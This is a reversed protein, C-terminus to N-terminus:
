ESDDEITYVEQGDRDAGNNGGAAAGDEQKSPQSQRQQYLKQLQPQPVSGPTSSQFLPGEASSIPTEAGPSFLTSGSGLSKGRATHYPLPHSVAHGTNATAAGSSYVTDLTPAPIASRSPGGAGCTVLDSLRGSLPTRFRADNCLGMLYDVSHMDKAEPQRSPSPADRVHGATAAAAAGRSGHTLSSASLDGLGLATSPRPISPAQTLEDSGLLVVGNSSRQGEGTEVGGGSLAQPVSQGNFFYAHRQQHQQTPIPSSGILLESNDTAHSAGAHSGSRLTDALSPDGSALAHSYVTQAMMTFPQQPVQPRPRQGMPLGSGALLVSASTSSASPSFLHGNGGAINNHPPPPPPPAPTGWSVGAAAVAVTSPPAQWAPPEPFLPVSFQPMPPTPPPHPEHPPLAAAVASAATLITNDHANAVSPDCTLQDYIDAIRNAAAAANAQPPLPPAGACGVPGQLSLWPSSPRVNVSIPVAAPAAATTSSFTFTTRRQRQQDGVTGPLKVGSGGDRSPTGASSSISARAKEPTATDLLMPRQAPQYTALANTSAAEISMGGVFGPTATSPLRDGDGSCGGEGDNDVILEGASANARGLRNRPRVVTKMDKVEASEAESLEEVDGIHIYRFHRYVRLIDAGYRKVKSKGMGELDILDAVSGWGPIALTETLRLITSKPMVNYSRCGVAQSVLTQVLRDMEEQLLVKLRELRAAPVTSAPTAATVASRLGRQALVARQDVADGRTRKRPPQHVQAQAQTDESLTSIVGDQSGGSSLTRQRRGADALAAGAGDRQPTTASSINFPTAVGSSSSEDNIFSAMSNSLASDEEISSIVGEDGDTSGDAEDLVYGGGRRGKLPKPKRKKADQAALLGRTGSGDGVAAQRRTGDFLEFLPLDDRSIAGSVASVVADRRKGGGEVALAATTAVAAIRGPSFTEPAASVADFIADGRDSRTKEGRLRVTVVRHEAKIDCHLQQATPTGGLEVFACVAFDNISDLREEFLGLQMGELLTRELLVKSQKAGGKYEAPTGKVRMRMEVARGMDSVSGRYVGILQKSTMAGLRLVIAYLDLLINSVNVEKVTWGEALKSACNDCLQTVASASAVSTPPLAPVAGGGAAARQTLCFHVDVQEGFHHLQQRRRCDVDNLTYALMRHLSTLSARWDKSGHILREQRQRDTTTSLLVCESPLGDRGARGSEQYYGEISKPMAAHVVYRVDPKNIGMGFAITACIVQLEDRTWREQRENKSAAESHYYSAKIGRRVLAAAMEECDKRSLCYVIGCWSPSFRHLILDEVVSVVQKGRVHQVSYKLNARNFSGKFIIANRLALTKIVDQQVVDTATATLATIPTRPFQRKLVSLKRYDPRFDHGWQSVCHAEDIVFRCLLGKDTLGQLTGVFHDSRGFYEPTVYVLTHVVHGSAWEQFLSRRAADNTQGTLAMAPIDNAILAYVQDQILSILPSVVVTVQAPNPMLAPLQYCLSKGGGTPLLVFVDRGDMCANMIELQCFRYDHLGFVERMMRRLETSWPFREGGYQHTPNIPLEVHATRSLADRSLAEPDMQQEYVEWSFGKRASPISYEASSFSPSGGNVSTDWQGTLAPSCDGIGSHNVSHETMTTLWGGHPPAGAAGAPTATGSSPAAPWPLPITSQMLPDRQESGGPYGMAGTSSGIGPGYASSYNACGLGIVSPSRPLQVLSSPMSSLSSPTSTSTPRNLLTAQTVRFRAFRQELEAIRVDLQQLEDSPDHEEDELLVLDDRHHQAERLQKAVLRMEAKVDQLTLPSPAMCPAVLASSAAPPVMSCGGRSAAPPPMTPLLSSSCVATTGGAPSSGVLEGVGSNRLSSIPFSAATAPMISSRTTVRQQRVGPAAAPSHTLSPPPPPAYSAVSFNSNNNNATSSGGSNLNGCGGDGISGGLAPYLRAPPPAPVLSTCHLCYQQYVAQYEALPPATDRAARMAVDQPTGQNPHTQSWAGGNNGNSRSGVGGELSRQVASTLASLWESENTLYPPSMRSALAPYITASSSSVRNGNNDLNGAAAASTSASSLSTSTPM